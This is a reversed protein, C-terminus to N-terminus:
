ISIRDARDIRRRDKASCHMKQTTALSQPPLFLVFRNPEEKHSFSRNKLARRFCNELDDCGNNETDSEITHHNAKLTEVMIRFDNREVFETFEVFLDVEM